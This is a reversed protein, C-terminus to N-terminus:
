AKVLTYASFGGYQRTPTDTFPLITVYRTKGAGVGVYELKAIDVVKVTWAGFAGTANDRDTYYVIYRASPVESWTLTPQPQFYSPGDVLRATVNSVVSGSKFPTPAVPAVGEETISFEFAKGPDLQIGFTYEGPALSYPANVEVPTGDAVYIYVVNSIVEVKDAKAADVKTPVADAHPTGDPVVDIGLAIDMDYAGGVTKLNLVADVQKSVRFYYYILDGRFTDSVKTGLTYSKKAVVGAKVGIASAPIALTVAIAVAVVASFLRTRIKTM